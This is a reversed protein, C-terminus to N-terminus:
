ADVEVKTKSVLELFAQVARDPRMERLAAPPEFGPGLWDADGRWAVVMADALADVDGIPVLLGSVGHEVLEDISAGDSGIVPVGMSLSEIVTNPLNDVRSPLVSAVAGTLVRYMETKELTGLVIVQDARPGWLTRFRALARAEIPGAWVMHLDPERRWVEVLARAVVDTGKRSGLSGFHILYKAPVTFPVLAAPGGASEAPPRVVAVDIGHADMFHRALFTSPAYVVDARRLARVDLWEIFRAMTAHRLGSGRDYLLRSTSIRIAHVRGIAKRVFFGTLQHNSSQIVDFPAVRSRREVSAALHRANCLQVLTSSRSGVVVGLLRALARVLISRESQVREVRMGRFTVVGATASPVFIEAVIGRADLATAMKAVYNGIGGSAQPETLFEPTVFAVRGIQPADGDSM